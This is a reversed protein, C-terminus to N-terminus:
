PRCCLFCWVDVNNCHRWLPRTTTEFWWDWSQKSLPKNLARASWLFCWAEADRATTRPIWRHGTFEGCLPDTVSFINGNSSTVMAQWKPLFDMSWRHSRRVFTWCHQFRDRIRIFHLCSVVIKSLIIASVECPKVAYQRSIKGWGVSDKVIMNKITHM